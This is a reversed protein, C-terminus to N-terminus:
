SRLNMFGTFHITFAIESQESIKLIQRDLFWVEILDTDRTIDTWFFFFLIFPNKENASTPVQIYVYQIYVYQRYFFSYLYWALHILCTKMRLYDIKKGRIFSILFFISNRTHVFHMFYNDHSHLTFFSNKEEKIRKWVVWKEIREDRFLFRKM